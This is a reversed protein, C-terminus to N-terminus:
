RPKRDTQSIGSPPWSNCRSMLVRSPFCRGRMSLNRRPRMANVVLRQDIVRGEGTRRYHALGKNHAQRDRPSTLASLERGIVEQRSYGFTREAVPNFETVLNDVDMCVICDISSKIVADMRRKAARLELYNELRANTTRLEIDREVDLSIDTATGRYGLLEGNAGLRPVGSIRMLRRATGNLKKGELDREQLSPTKAVLATINSAKDDIYQVILSAGM